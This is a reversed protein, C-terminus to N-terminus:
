SSESSGDALSCGALALKGNTTSELEKSPLSPVSHGEHSNESTTTSGLLLVELMVIGLGGLTVALASATLLIVVLRWTRVVPHAATSM